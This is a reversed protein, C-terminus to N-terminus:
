ANGHYLPHGDVGIHLVEMAGFEIETIYLKKSGRPGFACNTPRSGKTRIRKVVDGKKGLVTIDGQGYVAVYLNGSSDFKMGDPGRFGAGRSPNMVNGFYERYRSLGKGTWRYRYVNGTITENVYLHKDPGVAIGNTFRLGRDLRAIQKTRVDIRYVRGDYPLSMYGDLVEGDREFSDLQIGSDTMYLAGDPGFVLDNPYLFPEDDCGRLFVEWTGDTSLRALSPPLLQAVWINGSGDVALGNPRGMKAITSRSKGNESIHTVCNRQPHMEVIVWSNDPLLVPGEPERLDSVFVM